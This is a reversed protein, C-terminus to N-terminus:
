LVGLFLLMPYLNKDIDINLSTFSFSMQWGGSRNKLNFVFYMSIYKFDNDRSGGPQTTQPVIDHTNMGWTLSVQKKFTLFAFACSFFEKMCGITRLCTRVWGKEQSIEISTGTSIHFIPWVTQQMVCRKSAHEPEKWKEEFCRGRAHYWNGM